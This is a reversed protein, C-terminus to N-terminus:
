SEVNEELPVFALSTLVVILILVPYAKPGFSPNHQGKITPSRLLYRQSEFVLDVSPSSQIEPRQIMSIPLGDVTEAAEPFLNRAEM